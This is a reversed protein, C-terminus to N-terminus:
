QATVTVPEPLLARGDALPGGADAADLRPLGDVPRYFGVALRYDGTPAGSLDLRVTDAVIEGQLWQGTPYSNGAPQGDVQTAVAGAADLLHVFRTFDAPIDDLAEWYFTM